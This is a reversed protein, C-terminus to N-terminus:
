RARRAPPPPFRALGAWDSEAAVLLKKVQSKALDLALDAFCQYRTLDPAGALCVAIGTVQLGRAVAIIKADTPLPISSALESTFAAVADGAGLMTLLRGTLWGITHHIRQQGDLLATAAKALARCRRRWRRSGLVQDAVAGAHTVARDAVAEQWGPGVVDACYVAARRVRERQREERAMERAAPSRPRRLPPRSPTTRSAAARPKPVLPPAEPLGQHQYCRLGPESVKNKCLPGTGHRTRARCKAM